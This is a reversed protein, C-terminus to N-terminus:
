SLLADRRERWHDFDLGTMDQIRRVLESFQGKSKSPREGSPIYLVKRGRLDDRLRRIDRRLQEAERDQVREFTKPDHPPTSLIHRGIKTKRRAESSDKESKEPYQPDRGSIGRGSERRDSYWVPVWDRQFQYQGDVPVGRNLVVQSPIAWYSGSFTAEPFALSLLMMSINLTQGSSKIEDIIMVHQGDLRTPHKWVENLREEDIEATSFLARIRALHDGLNEVKALNVLEPPPNELYQPPVGMRRLWAKKDINLFFSDPQKPMAGKQPTALTDWLGRVLWEVPRASKDLYVVSTPPPLDKREAVIRQGSRDYRYAVAGDLPISGDFKGVLNDTCSVYTALLRETSWQPGSNVEQHKGQLIHYGQPFPKETESAGGDSGKIDKRDLM